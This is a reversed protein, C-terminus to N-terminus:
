KKNPNSYRTSGYKSVADKIKSSTWSPVNQTGFGPSGPSGSVMSLEKKSAAIQGKGPSMFTKQYLGTAGKKYFPAGEGYSQVSAAATRPMISNVISALPNNKQIEGMSRGELRELNKDAAIGAQEAGLGVILSSAIFAGIGKATIGTLMGKKTWGFKKDDLNFKYTDKGLKIEGGSKAPAFAPTKKTDKSKLWDYGSKAMSGVFVANIANDLTLLDSAAAEKKTVIGTGEEIGSKEWPPLEGGSSSEKKTEEPAPAPPSFDRQEPFDLIVIPSEAGGGGQTSAYSPLGGEMGGLGGKGSLGGEQNKPLLLYGIAGLAAITILENKEM